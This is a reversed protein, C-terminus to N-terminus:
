AENSCKQTKNNDCRKTNYGSLAKTGTQNQKLCEDFKFNQLCPPHEPAAINLCVVLRSDLSPSTEITIRFCFYYVFPVETNQGDQVPEGFM